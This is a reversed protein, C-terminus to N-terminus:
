GCFKQVFLYNDVVEGAERRPLIDRRDYAYQAYKLALDKDSEQEKGLACREALYYALDTKVTCLLIVNEKKTEDLKIGYKHFAYDTLAIANELHIDKTKDAEYTNWCTWGVETLVTTVSNLQSQRIRNEVEMSLVRYAGYTMVAIAIGAISLIVILLDRFVEYQISEPISFSRGFLWFSYGILLGIAFLVVMLLNTKLGKEIVKTSLGALIVIIGALLLALGGSYTKGAITLQTKQLIMYIGFGICLYGAMVVASKESRKENSMM